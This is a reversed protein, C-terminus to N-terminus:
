GSIRRAREVYSLWNEMRMMRNQKDLIVQWKEQLEKSNIVDRLIQHIQVRFMFSVTCNDTIKLVDEDGVQQAHM